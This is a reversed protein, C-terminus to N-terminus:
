ERVIRLNNTGYVLLNSDVVGGEDRPLMSATGTPHWASIVYKRVWEHIEEDTCAPNPHEFALHYQGLPSTTMAKQAFKVAHFLIDLDAPNSLYNHDIAPPQTQHSSTIHVSGRSFPRLLIALLSDYRCAPKSQLVGPEGIPFWCTAHIYEVQPLSPNELWDHQLELPKAPAGASQHRVKTQLALIETKPVMSPLPVMAIRMHTSSFMGKKEQEYIRLQEASVAPDQLIDRTQTDSNVERIIPVCPHDPLNEGVGPLDVVVSIGFKNLVTPNGIGSLELLQPTQYIGAAIIVERTCKVTFLEGGQKYQVGTAYITDGGTDTIIRTVQADSLLHLNPRQSNPLYYGTTASSRTMTEADVSVTMTFVGANDGNQPDLNIEVGLANFSDLFPKHLAPIFPTYSKQIPGHDGHFKHDLKIHNKSAYEPLPEITRESKKLYSLFQPWNWGPNGLTEFATLANNSNIESLFVMCVVSSGGVVKGRPLYLRRGDLSEQPVSSFMWDLEPNALTRGIYGPIDIIPSDTVLKGAEIIGVTANPDESLRTAVTLGATGGGVVIYDFTTAAFGGTNNTM